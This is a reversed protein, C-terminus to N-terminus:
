ELNSSGSLERHQANRATGDGEGKEVNEGPRAGLVQWFRRKGYRGRHVKTECGKLGVSASRGALYCSRAHERDDSTRKAKCVSGVQCAFVSRDAHPRPARRSSRPENLGTFTFSTPLSAVITDRSFCSSLRTPLRSVLFPFETLPIVRFFLALFPHFSLSRSFRFSLAFRRHTGFVIVQQM